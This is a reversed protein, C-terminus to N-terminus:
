RGYRQCAPEKTASNQAAITLPLRKAHWAVVGLLREGGRELLEDVCHVGLGRLFCVREDLPEARVEPAVRSPHGDHGLVEVVVLMWVHLDCEILDEVRVASASIEDPDGSRVLPPLLERERVQERRAIRPTADGFTRDVVDVEVELVVARERADM